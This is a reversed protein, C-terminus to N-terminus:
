CAYKVRSLASEYADTLRRFQEDNGGADPHYTKCLERYRRKIAASDTLESFGFPDSKPGWVDLGIMWALYDYQGVLQDIFIKNALESVSIGEAAAQKALRQCVIEDLSFTVRQKTARANKRKNGAGQRAGGRTM